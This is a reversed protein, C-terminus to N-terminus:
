VTDVAASHDASAEAARRARKSAARAFAGNVGLLGTLAIAVLTGSGISSGIM